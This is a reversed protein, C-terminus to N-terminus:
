LLAIQWGKANLNSSTQRSKRSRFGLILTHLQNYSADYNTRNEGPAAAAVMPLNNVDPAGPGCPKFIHVCLRDPASRALPLHYTINIVVKGDIVVLHSLWNNCFTSALLSQLQPSASFDPFNLIWYFIFNHGLNVPHTMTKNSEWRPCIRLLRPYTTWM